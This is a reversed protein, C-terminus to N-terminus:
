QAFITCVNSDGGNDFNLTWELKNCADGVSATAVWQGQEDFLSVVAHSLRCLCGNPDSPDGCWRNLVKLSEIPFSGGLDVKWWSYASSNTTHSYTDNKGDVANSAVLSSLTSSQMASKGKAVNVGSSYIEVEFM